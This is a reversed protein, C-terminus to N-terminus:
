QEGGAKPEVSLLDSSMNLSFPAIVGLADEQGTPNSWMSVLRQPPSSPVAERLKAPLATHLPVHSLCLARATGPRGSILETSM